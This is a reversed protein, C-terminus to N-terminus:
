MAAHLRAAREIAGPPFPRVHHQWFVRRCHPKRFRERHQTFRRRQRSRFNHACAPGDPRGPATRATAAPPHYPWCAAGPVPAKLCRRHPARHRGPSRRADRSSVEGATLPGASPSRFRAPAPSRSSLAPSRARQHRAARAAKRARLPSNCGSNASQSPPAIM